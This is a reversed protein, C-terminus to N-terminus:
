PPAANINMRTPRTRGGLIGAEKERDKRMKEAIQTTTVFYVNARRVVTLGNVEAVLDVAVDVPVNLLRITIEPDRQGEKQTRPDLFVNYGSTESFKKFVDKVDARVFDESILPLLGTFVSRNEPIEVILGDKM